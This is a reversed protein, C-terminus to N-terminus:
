PKWEAGFAHKGPKRSGISGGVAGLPADEDLAHQMDSVVPLKELEFQIAQMGALAAAETEAAVAAIPDGVHRVKKWACVYADNVPWGFNGHNVFDEATIVANVGPVKLAPSVDLSFFIQM